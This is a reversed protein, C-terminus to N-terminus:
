AALEEADIATQIVYGTLYPLGRPIGTSRSTPNTITWKMWQAVAAIIADELKKHTLLHNRVDDAFHRGHRSDLFARVAELSEGTAEAIKTMALPWAAKAQTDMTGFFGWGENTTAPMSNTATNM